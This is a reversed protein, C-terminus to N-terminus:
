EKAGHTAVPIEASTEFYAKAGGKVYVMEGGSHGTEYAFYLAALSALVTFFRVQNSFSFRTLLGSLVLILLAVEVKIFREAIHEHHEVESHEQDSHEHKDKMVPGAHHEHHRDQNESLTKEVKEKDEEGLEKAYLASGVLLAQIVVALVWARAPLWEKRIMFWLLFFLVPSVMALGLPVHVVAPHLPM